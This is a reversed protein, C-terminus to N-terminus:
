NNSYFTGFFYEVYFTIRLYDNLAFKSLNTFKFAFQLNKNKQLLYDFLKLLVPINILSIFCRGVITLLKHLLYKISFLTRWVNASVHCEGSGTRKCKRKSPCWGGELHLRLFQIGERLEREM